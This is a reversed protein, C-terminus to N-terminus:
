AVVRYDRPRAAPHAPRVRHGPGALQDDGPRRGPPVLEHLREVRQPGAAAAGRRRLARRGRDRVDVYSVGPRALQEVAQRIYRAQREIMYIISGAGLNTNPGYVCFMNPFGPVAMGLYARAGGCWADQLSRGGLGLVKLRGLFDTAAFGTGYM